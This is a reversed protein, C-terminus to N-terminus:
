TVMAIFALGTVLFKKFSAIESTFFSNFFNAKERLFRVELSADEVFDSKDVLAVSSLNLSLSESKIELSPLIRSACLLM